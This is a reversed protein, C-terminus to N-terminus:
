LADFIPCQSQALERSSWAHADEPAFSFTVELPTTRMGLNEQDYWGTIYIRHIVIEVMHREIEVVNDGNLHLLVKWGVLRKIKDWLHKESQQCIALPDKPRGYGVTEHWELILRHRDGTGLEFVRDLKVAKIVERMEVSM